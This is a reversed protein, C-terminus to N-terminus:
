TKKLLPLGTHQNEVIQYGSPLTNMANGGASGAFYYITQIHGGRLTVPKSHLYYTKGSKKSVTSYAM